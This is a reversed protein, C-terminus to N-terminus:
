SYSLFSVYRFDQGSFKENQPDSVSAAAVSEPISSLDLSGGGGAAIAGEEEIYRTKAVYSMGLLWSPVNQNAARMLDVLGESIGLSRGDLFAIASGKAGARGKTAIHTCKNVLLFAINCMMYICIDSVQEDSVIFLATSIVLLM